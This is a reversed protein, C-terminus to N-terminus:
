PPAHRFTLSLITTLFPDTSVKIRGRSHRLFFSRPFFIKTLLMLSTLPPNPPTLSRMLFPAVRFFVCPILSHPSSYFLDAFRPAPKELQAEYLCCSRRSPYLTRGSFFGFQAKRVDVTQRFLPYSPFFFVFQDPSKRRNYFHPSFGWPTCVSGVFVEFHTNFVLSQFFISPTPFFSSHAECVFAFFYFQVGASISGPFTSVSNLINPFLSTLSHRRSHPSPLVIKLFFFGANSSGV